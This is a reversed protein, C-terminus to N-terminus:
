KDKPIFENHNDLALALGDLVLEPRLLADPFHPSLWEADGGTMVLIPQTAGAAKSQKIAQAVLGSVMAGQAAAVGTDTNRGPSVTIETPINGINVRQTNGLLADRILRLGPAIYGGLHEGQANVIDVTIASGCDVIVCERGTLAFGALIALWRDAGLQEPNLYGNVVGTAAIQSVAFMPHVGFKGLCWRKFDDNRAENLVSVVRVQRLVGSEVPVDAAIQSFASTSALNGRAVNGSESQLRWKIRTNGIDLELIM